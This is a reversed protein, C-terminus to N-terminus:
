QTTVDNRWNRSWGNRYYVPITYIIPQPPTQAQMAQINAADRVAASAATAAATKTKNDQEQNYLFWLIGLVLVLGIIWYLLNM